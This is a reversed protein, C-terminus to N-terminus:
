PQEETDTLARVACTDIPGTTALATLDGAPATTRLGDVWQVLDDPEDTTPRRTIAAIVQRPSM